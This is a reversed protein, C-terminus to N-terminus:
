SDNTLLSLVYIIVISQDVKILIIAIFSSIHGIFSSIQGKFALFHGFRGWISGFSGFCGLNSGGFLSMERYLYLSFLRNRGIFSYNWQYEMIVEYLKM